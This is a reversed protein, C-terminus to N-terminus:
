QRTRVLLDAHVRRVPCPCSICRGHWQRLTTPSHAYAGAPLAYLDVHVLGTGGPLRHGADLAIQQACAIRHLQVGAHLGPPSVGNGAWM